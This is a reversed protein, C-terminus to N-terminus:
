GEKRRSKFVPKEGNEKIFQAFFFGQLFTKVADEGKPALLCHAADYLRCDLGTGVTIFDYGTKKKIIQALLDPNVIDETDRM